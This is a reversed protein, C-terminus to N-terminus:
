VNAGLAVLEDLGVDVVAGVTRGLGVFVSSGVTGGLGVASRHAM